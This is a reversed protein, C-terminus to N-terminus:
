VLFALVILNNLFKCYRVKEFNFFFVAKFFMISLLTNIPRLAVYHDFSVLKQEHFITENKVVVTLRPSSCNTLLYKVIKRVEVFRERWKIATHIEIALKDAM